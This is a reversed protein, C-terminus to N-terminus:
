HPGGREPHGCPCPTIDPMALAIRVENQSLLRGAADPCDGRHLIARISGSKDDPVHQLRWGASDEAIPHSRRSVVPPDVPPRLGEIERIRADVGDLQLQLYLRTVRLRDLDPPLYSM